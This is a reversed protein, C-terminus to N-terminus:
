YHHMLFVANEFDAGHGFDGGMGGARQDPLLGRILTESLVYLDKSVNDAGKTFANPPGFMEVLVEGTEANKLTGLKQKNPRKM